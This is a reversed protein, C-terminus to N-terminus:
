FWTLGKGMTFKLSTCEFPDVETLYDSGSKAAMTMRSVTVSFDLLKLKTCEPQRLDINEPLYLIQLSSPLCNDFHLSWANPLADARFDMDLVLLQSCRGLTFLSRCNMIKWHCFDILIKVFATAFSHRFYLVWFDSKINSSWGYRIDFVCNLIFILLRQHCLSSNGWINRQHIFFETRRKTVSSWFSYKWAPKDESCPGGSWLISIIRLTAISKM